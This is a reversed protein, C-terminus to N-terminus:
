NKAIKELDDNTIRNLEGIEDILRNLVTGSKNSLKILEEDNFLRKGENDVLCLGVMRARIHKMNPGGNKGRNDEEFKDQEYGTMQKIYVDGGWEKVHIKKTKIDNAALIMDKTLDAM